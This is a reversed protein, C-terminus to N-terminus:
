RGQWMVVPDVHIANNKWRRSRCSILNQYVYLSSAYCTLTNTSCALVEGKVINEAPTGVFAFTRTCPSKLCVTPLRLGTKSFITKYSGSDANLSMSAAPVAYRQEVSSRLGTLASVSRYTDCVGNM